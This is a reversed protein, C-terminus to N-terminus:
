KRSKAWRAYSVFGSLSSYVHGEAKPDTSVLKRVSPDADLVTLYTETLTRSEEVGESALREWLM